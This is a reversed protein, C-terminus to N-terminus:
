RGALPGPYGEREWREIAQEISWIWNEADRRGMPGSLEAVERWLQIAEAWRGADMADNAACAREYRKQRREKEESRKSMENAEELLRAADVALAANLTAQATMRDSM